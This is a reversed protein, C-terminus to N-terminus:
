PLPKLHARRAAVEAAAAEEDRRRLEDVIPQLTAIIRRSAQGRAYEVAGCEELQALREQAEALQAVIGLFTEAKVFVNGPPVVHPRTWKLHLDPAANFPGFTSGRDEEAIAEAQKQIRELEGKYLRSGARRCQNYVRRWDEANM